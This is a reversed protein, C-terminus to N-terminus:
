IEILVYNRNPGSIELIEKQSSSEFKLCIVTLKYYKSQYIGTKFFIMPNHEISMRKLSINTKLNQECCSCVRVIEQINSLEAVM